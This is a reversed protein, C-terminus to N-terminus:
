IVCLVVLVGSQRSNAVSLGLCAYTSSLKEEFKVGICDHAAACFVFFLTLEVDSV